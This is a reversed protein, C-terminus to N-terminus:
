YKSIIHGGYKSGGEKEIVGARYLYQFRECTMHKKYISIKHHLANEYKQIRIILLSNFITFKIKNTSLFHIIFRIM